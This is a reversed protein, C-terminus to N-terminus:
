LIRRNQQKRNIYDAVADMGSQFLQQYEQSGEKIDFQLASIGCDNISITRNRDVLNHDLIATQHSDYISRVTLDIYDWVTEPIDRIQKNQIKAPYLFLGLTEGNIGDSFMRSRRAYKPNDFIDIPYNNYLGGDVYYDGEGLRYGDFQLSEFFLPISMSMRVADAVSVEPTTEVSFIETRHRSLNSVVVYLDRFGYEQFERFTAAANGFCHDAIIKREWQYFYNSSYWGFKEFMRRYNDAGKVPLIKSGPTKGNNGNQPIKSLDLTNFLEIIKTVPLRMSFLLAAIAGSSTGATREVNKLLGQEDLVKLAGMYAIGRVGGGKFALNRIVPINKKAWKSRLPILDKFNEICKM